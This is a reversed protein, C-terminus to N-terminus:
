PLLPSVMRFGKPPRFGKRVMCRSGDSFGCANESFEPFAFASDAGERPIGIFLMADRFIVGEYYYLKVSNEIKEM